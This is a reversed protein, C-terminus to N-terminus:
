RAILERGKVYCFVAYLISIPVAVCTWVSPGISINGDAGLMALASSVNSGLIVSVIIMIVSLILSLVSAAMGSVIGLSKRKLTYVVSVAYLVVSIVAFITYFIMGVLPGTVSSGLFKLADMSGSGFMSAIGSASKAMKSANALLATMSMFPLSFGHKEGYATITFTLSSCVVSLIGLMAIVAMIAFM